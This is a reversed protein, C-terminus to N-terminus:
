SKDSFQIRDSGDAGLTKHHHTRRAGSLGRLCSLCDDQSRSQKRLKL